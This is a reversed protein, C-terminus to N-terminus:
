MLVATALIIVVERTACAVVLCAFCLTSLALAVGRLQFSWSYRSAFVKTGMPLLDLEEVAHEPLLPLENDRKDSSSSSFFRVGAKASIIQRGSSGSILGAIPM